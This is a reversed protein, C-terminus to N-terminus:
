FMLKYYFVIELFPPPTRNKYLSELADVFSTDLRVMVPSRILGSILGLPQSSKQPFMNGLHKAAFTIVDSQSVVDVVEGKRCSLM